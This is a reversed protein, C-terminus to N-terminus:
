ESSNDTFRRWPSRKQIFAEIVGKLGANLATRLGNFSKYYDEESFNKIFSRYYEQAAGDAFYYRTSGMTNGRSILPLEDTDMFKKRYGKIIEGVDYHYAIKHRTMPLIKGLSSKNPAKTTAAEYIENWKARYPPPIQSKVSEFDTSNIIEKSEKIVKFLEHMLAIFQKEVFMKVGAIEGRLPERPMDKPNDFQVDSPTVSQMHDILLSLNKNDNWILAFALVLNCLEQSFKDDGIFANKDFSQLDSLLGLNDEIKRNTM